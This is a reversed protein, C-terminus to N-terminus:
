PMRGDSPICGDTGGASLMRGDADGGPLIRGDTSVVSLIRGDSMICDDTLVRGDTDLGAELAACPEFKGPTFCERQAVAATVCGSLGNTFPMPFIFQRRLAPENCVSPSFSFLAVTASVTLNFRRSM